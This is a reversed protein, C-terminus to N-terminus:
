SLFKPKQSFDVLKLVVQNKKMSERIAQREKNAAQQKDKLRDLKGKLYKVERVLRRKSRAEKQEDDLEDDEPGSSDFDPEPTNERIAAESQRRAQADPAGGQEFDHYKLQM